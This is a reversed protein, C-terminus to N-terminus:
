PPDVCRVMDSNQDASRANRSSVDGTQSSRLRDAPRAHRFHGTGKTELIKSAVESSGSYSSCFFVAPTGTGFNYLM